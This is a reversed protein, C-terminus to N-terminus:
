PWGHPVWLCVPSNNPDGGSGAGDGIGLECKECTAEDSGDSCDPTDDCELFGDICCGNSCRFQTAHCSGSCVPHLLHLEPVSHWPVLM